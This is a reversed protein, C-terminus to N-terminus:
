MKKGYCFGPITVGIPTVSFSDCGVQVQGNQAEEKDIGDLIAKVSAMFENPSGDSMPGTPIGLKDFEGIVNLYARSSSYGSLFKTSLLM